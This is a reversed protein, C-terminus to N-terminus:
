AELRGLPRSDNMSVLRLLASLEHLDAEKALDALGGAMDTIYRHVDNKRLTTRIPDRQAM